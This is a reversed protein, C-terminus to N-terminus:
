DELLVPAPPPPTKPRPQPPPSPKPAEPTPAILDVMMPAMEAAAERVAPVQLLAWGALLHAGLMSGVLVRRAGPGLADPSAGGLRLPPLPAPSLPATTDM